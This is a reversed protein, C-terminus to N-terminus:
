PTMISLLLGSPLPWHNSEPGEGNPQAEQNGILLDAPSLAQNAVYETRREDLRARIEDRARINWEGTMMQKIEELEFFFIEDASELRGDSMAEHAAALVWHRTGAWIYSLAHLARNQLTQMEQIQQLLQRDAASSLARDSPPALRQPRTEILASLIRLLLSPDEHWRPTALEGEDLSRHGFRALFDALAERGPPDPFETQPRQLDGDKIWAVVRGPDQIRDCVAVLAAVMESEVFGTLDPLGRNFGRDYLAALRRRAALYAMMSAQGAREIEEMVQLVEAQSWHADRAKVQWVQAQQTTADMRGMMGALHEDLRKQARGLKFGGLFGPKEWSALPFPTGNLQLTLPAVGAQEAELQASLSLNLYARGQHRRLLPARVPLTFGLQNYYAHWAQDIMEALVSYSFPTLAGAALPQIPGNSWVTASKGPASSPLIYDFM